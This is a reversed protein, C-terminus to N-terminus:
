ISMSETWIPTMSMRSYLDGRLPCIDIKCGHSQVQWFRKQFLLFGSLIPTQESLIKKIARMHHVRLSEFGRDRRQSRLSTYLLCPEAMAPEGATPEAPEPQEPEMVAAEPPSSGTAEETVEPEAANVEEPGSNVKEDAM